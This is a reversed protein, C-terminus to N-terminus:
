EKIGFSSKGSNKKQNKQKQKKPWAQSVHFNGPWLEFRQWLLSEPRQQSLAPDKVWQAVLCRWQLKKPKKERKIGCPVCSYFTIKDAAFHNYSCFLGSTSSLLKVCLLLCM